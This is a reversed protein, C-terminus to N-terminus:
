VDKSQFVFRALLLDPSSKVRSHGRIRKQRSLARECSAESAPIAVISIIKGTIKRVTRDQAEFGLRNWLEVQRNVDPSAKSCRVQSEVNCFFSELLQDVQESIRVDQDEEDLGALV